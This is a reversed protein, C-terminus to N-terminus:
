NKSRRFLLQSCLGLLFLSNTYFYRKWLRGPEQFLRFLWELGRQQMWKPAMKKNGSHFDFAAGVCVQVGNIRERQAFAFLDQRPCGLGIFILGAGSANIRQVVSREEELTLSRFPPSESGVIKLDSFLNNLNERLKEIVHPYSGYLYIGVGDEAAQRCLRLMLEPGYVRDQLNTKHLHNLAWRVPQGDPVVMEFSNIVTRLSLDRSATVIGHVPLATVIAPRKEAIAANILCVAEAYDTVSVDVELLRNKQPWQLPNDASATCSNIDSITM